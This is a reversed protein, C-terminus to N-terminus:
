KKSETNKTAVATIEAIFKSIKDPSVGLIGSDPITSPKTFISPGMNVFHLSYNQKENLLKFILKYTLERRVPPMQVKFLLTIRNNQGLNEFLWKSSDFDSDGDSMAVCPYEQEDWGSLVYDYRSISRGVDLSVTVVAWAIDSTVRSPPEYKHVNKIVPIFLNEGTLIEASLIKGSRFRMCNIKEDGILHLSLFNFILFAYVVKKMMGWRKYEKQTFFIDQILTKLYKM